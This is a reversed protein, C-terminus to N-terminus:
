AEDTEEGLFEIDDLTIDLADYTDEQSAALAEAEEM